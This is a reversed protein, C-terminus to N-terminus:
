RTVFPVYEPLEGLLHAGLLRTQVDLVRRYSVRYKFTPHTVEHSMRREYARLVAKRGIPTLGVAKGRVIFDEDGIEGNNLLQLVVSDGILPRFEEALDLAMAPRGYRPRHYVGIFPDLGVANATVTLDRVLLGYVFSLLANLQDLPPRRNRGLLDFSAIDVRAAESVMTAFTAFYIRAATGEYGLLAPFGGAARASTALAGLQAVAKTVDSRANRRLLTRCNRVKGEVMRCAIALGLSQGSVIQARRLDVHKNPLGHAMGSFWGGYSFWCVPIDRAFFDRLAFASVSVNGVVNVQSVDIVRVSAIVERGKSVEVRGRRIGVHAGQETCYLPAHDPARPVIRRPPHAQRGRLSNLEDPLCITVLSCRPCKPSDILPPPAQSSAAVTRLEHLIEITTTETQGDVDIGVRQRTEAYWIEARECRYGAERLLLVQLVSQIRDSPWPEGEGNPRGKKYDVPVVEGQGGPEVLDVKASVGLLTSSLWVSRAAGHWPEDGTPLAGGESDVVRHTYLGAAVDDNSVFRAQVWEFYFLRPCYVYENVMRAPITEPVGDDIM